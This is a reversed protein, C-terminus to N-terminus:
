DIIIKNKSKFNKLFDESDLIKELPEQKQIMEEV